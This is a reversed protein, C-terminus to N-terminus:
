YTDNNIKQKTYKSSLREKIKIKNNDNLNTKNGLILFDHM